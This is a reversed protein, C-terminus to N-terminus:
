WHKLLYYGSKVTYCGDSTQPWMLQDEM